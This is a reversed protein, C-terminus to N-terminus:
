AMQEIVISVNYKMAGPTNSAYAVAYTIASAADAYVLKTLSQQASTADVTLATETETVPLGHDTWGLTVTLSSSVGDAITKRMYYNIRYPGGSLVTYATTTNIAANVGTVVPNPPAINAVDPTFGLASRVEEWRLRFFTNISGRSPVVIQTDGPIQSIQKPM